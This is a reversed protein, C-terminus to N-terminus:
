FDFILPSICMCVIYLIDSEDFGDLFDGGTAFLTFHNGELTTSSLYQEYTTM